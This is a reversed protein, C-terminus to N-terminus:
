SFRKRSGNSAATRVRLGTTATLTRLAATWTARLVTYTEGMYEPRHHVITPSVRGKEPIVIRSGNVDVIVGPDLNKVAHGVQRTSVLFLASGKDYTPEGRIDM